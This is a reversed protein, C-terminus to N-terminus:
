QAGVDTLLQLHLLVFGCVCSEREREWVCVWVCMQEREKVCVWLWGCGSDREKVCVWVWVSGRDTEEVCGCSGWERERVEKLGIVLTLGPNNSWRKERKKQWTLRCLNIGTWCWESLVQAVVRVLHIVYLVFTVLWICCYVPGGPNWLKKTIKAILIVSQDIQPWTTTFKHFIEAM